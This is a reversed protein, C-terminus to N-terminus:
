AERFGIGLGMTSRAEDHELIKLILCHNKKKNQWGQVNPSSRPARFYKFWHVNVLIKLMEQLVLPDASWFPRLREYIGPNPRNSSSKRDQVTLRVDRARLCKRTTHMDRSSCLDMQKCAEIHKCSSVHCIYLRCFFKVLLTFDKFHLGRSHQNFARGKLM